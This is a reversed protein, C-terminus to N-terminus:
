AVPAQRAALAQNKQPKWLKPPSVLAFPLQPHILLVNIVKRGKLYFSRIHQRRNQVFASFCLAASIIRADEPSPPKVSSGSKPFCAHRRQVAFKYEFSRGPSMPRSKVSPEIGVACPSGLAAAVPRGCMFRRM